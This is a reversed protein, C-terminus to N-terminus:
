VRLSVGGAAEADSLFVAAAEVRAQDSLVDDGIDDAAGADGVKGDDAGVLFEGTAFDFEGLSAVVEGADALDKGRQAIAAVEIVHQEVAGGGEAHQHGASEGCRIFQEDGDLAFVESEFAEGFDDLDDRLDAFAAGVGIEFDFADDHGHEIGAHVEGLLDDVVHALDEVVDNIIGEDWAADAEAFGGAEALGDDFVIGVTAAGDGVLCEGGFEEGSVGLGLFRVMAVQWWCM